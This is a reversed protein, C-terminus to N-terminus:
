SDREGTRRQAGSARRQAASTRSWRIEGRVQESGSAAFNAELAAAGPPSVAGGGAGRPAALRSDGSSEFVLHNLMDADVAVWCTMGAAVTVWVVATIRPSMWESM